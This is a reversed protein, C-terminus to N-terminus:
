KGMRDIIKYGWTALGIVFGCGGVILIWFPIDAKQSAM